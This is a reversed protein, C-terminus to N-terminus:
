DLNIKKKLLKQYQMETIEVVNKFKANENKRHKNTTSFYFMRTQFSDKTPIQFLIAPSYACVHKLIQEGLSDFHDSHEPSESSVAIIFPCPRTNVDAKSATSSSNLTWNRIGSESQILLNTFWKVLLLHSSVLATM